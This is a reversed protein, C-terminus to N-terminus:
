PQDKTQQSEARKDEDQHSEAQQLRRKVEETFDPVSHTAFADRELLLM